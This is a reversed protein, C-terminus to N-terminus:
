DLGEIFKAAQVAEDPVALEAYELSDVCNRFRNMYERLHEDPGQRIKTFDAMRKVKMVASNSGPATLHVKKIVDFLKLPDRESQAIEFGDCQEVRDRSDKSLTEWLVQYVERCAKDYSRKMDHYAKLKIKDDERVFGEQVNIVVDTEECGNLTMELIKSEKKLLTLDKGLRQAESVEEASPDERVNFSEFFGKIYERQQAIEVLREQVTTREQDNHNRKRVLSRIEEVNANPAEFVHHQELKIVDGVEDFHRYVYKEMEERWDMFNSSKDARLVLTRVGLVIDERSAPADGFRRHHRNFGFKKEGSKGHSFNRKPDERRNKEM